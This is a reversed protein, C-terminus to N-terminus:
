ASQTVGSKAKRFLFGAMFLLGTGLLLLSSPEPTPGVDDFSLPSGGEGTLPFEWGFYDGQTTVNGSYINYYYTGGSYWVDFIGGNTLGFAFGNSDMYPTGPFKLINDYTFNEGSNPWNYYYTAVGGSVTVKVQQSGVMTPGSAVVPLLTGSVGNVSVGGATIDFEGGGISNGSIYIGGTVGSAFAMNFSDAKAAQATALATVLVLSVIWPKKM